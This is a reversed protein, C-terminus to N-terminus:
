KPGSLIDNLDFSNGSTSTSTDNVAVIVLILFLVILIGIFFLIKVGLSHKKEESSSSYLQKKLRARYQTLTEKELPYKITSDVGVGEYIKENIIVTDIFQIDEQIPFSAFCFM